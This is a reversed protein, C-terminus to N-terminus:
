AYPDRTALWRRTVAAAVADAEGERGPPVRVALVSIPMVDSQGPTRLLEMLHHWITRRVREDFSLQLLSWGARALRTDFPDLDISLRGERAQRRLRTRLQAVEGPPVVQIDTVQDLKVLGWDEHYFGEASLWCTPVPLLRERRRRNDRREREQNWHRVLVMAAILGCFVLVVLGAGWQGSVGALIGIALGIGLIIGVPILVDAIGGGSRDEKSIVQRWQAETAYQPWRAIATGLVRRAQSRETARSLVVIALWIVLVTATLLGIGLLPTTWDVVVDAPLSDGFLVSSLWVAAAVVVIAAAPLIVWWAARQATLHLQSPPPGLSM